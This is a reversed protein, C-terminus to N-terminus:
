IQSPLCRASPRSRSPRRGTSRRGSKLHQIAYYAVNGPTVKKRSREVNVLMKSAMAISDQVLEQAGESGIFPVVQPVASKLRPAIEEQLM